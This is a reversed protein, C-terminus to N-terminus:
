RAPLHTTAAFFKVALKYVMYAVEISPTKQSNRVAIGAAVSTESQREQLVQQM